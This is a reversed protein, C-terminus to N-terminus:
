AAFPRTLLRFIGSALSMQRSPSFFFQAYADGFNQLSADFFESSRHLFFFPTELAFFPAL